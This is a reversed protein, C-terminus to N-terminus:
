IPATVREGVPEDTVVRWTEGEDDRMTRREELPQILIQRGTKAFRFIRGEFGPDPDGPHYVGRDYKESFGDVSDCDLDHFLQKLFHYKTIASDLHQPHHKLYWPTLDEDISCVLRVVLRGRYCNATDAENEGRHLGFSMFFKAPVLEPHVYGWSLRVCCLPDLQFRHLPFFIECRLTGGPVTYSLAMRHAIDGPAQLQFGKDHFYHHIKTLLEELEIGKEWNLSFSM